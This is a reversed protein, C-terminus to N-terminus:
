PPRAEDSIHRLAVVLAQVWPAEAMGYIPTLRELQYEELPGAICFLTLMAASPRDTSPIWCQMRPRGLVSNCSVNSNM